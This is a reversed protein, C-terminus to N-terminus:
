EQESGHRIGKYIKLQVRAYMKNFKNQIKGKQLMNQKIKEVTNKGFYADIECDMDKIKQKEIFLNISVLNRVLKYKEIGNLEPYNDILLRSNLLHMDLIKYDLRQRNSFILRTKSVCRALMANYLPDTALGEALAVSSIPIIHLKIGLEKELSEHVSKDTIVLVDIDRFNFGKDLFSGTIIVQEEEIASFIEHIVRIKIPELNKVHYYYLSSKRKTEIPKIIVYTGAPLGPRNKPIYIQDMNTGRSVKSIIEM